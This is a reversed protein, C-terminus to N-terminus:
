SATRTTKALRSGELAGIERQFATKYQTGYTAGITNFMQDEGRRIADAKKPTYAADGMAMGVRANAFHSAAQNLAAATDKHDAHTPQFRLNGSPDLTPAVHGQQISRSMKNMVVGLDSNSPAAFSPMQNLAQSYQGNKKQSQAWNATIGSAQAAMSPNNKGAYNQEFHKNYGEVSMGLSAGQDGITRMTSPNSLNVGQQRLGESTQRLQNITNKPDNQDNPNAYTPVGSAELASLAAQPNDGSMALAQMYQPNFNQLQKSEDDGMYGRAISAARGETRALFSGPKNLLPSKRQALWSAVTTPANAGYRRNLAASTARERRAQSRFQHSLSPATTRRRGEAWNSVGSALGKGRSGIATRLAAPAKGAWSIITGIMFYPGFYCAVAILFKFLLDITGQEGGEEPNPEPAQAFVVASFVLQVAVIFVISALALGIKNRTTFTQQKM